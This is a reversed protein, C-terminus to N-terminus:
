TLLKKVANATLGNKELQKEVSAHVVFADKVGLVTVKQLVKNDAYYKLVHTGFGGLEANDELTIVNKGKIENLVNADLPKITRANYVATDTGKSANLALEIMRPGVALIVNKGGKQLLEWKFDSTFPATEETNQIKGNPYRIAVPANLKLAEEIMLSLENLDKPALVTLNPVHSLYSLDFVGQHTKGDSGVLGARDLCFIVPLNQLCVDHVIQDYARQMFTSYIFVIPKTGSIAMGSALTVAYEECIGVDIFNSPHKEAFDSLGTGDKMGATIAHVNPNKSVIENLVSSIGGSFYHKSVQMDKSVGHFKSSNEEAVPLGKGKVTTLHLLTPVNSDRIDALIKILTKLNHGDFKGVYKLGVSDTITNISMSRKLFRKIAKLWRGIFCKGVTRSLFSNFRNYGKKVTIKSIVKYLGNDNKNISMGNDNLVVLFNSPKNTSSTIAELNEGNFLSADGVVTIVNYNDGLKDRSYCYGLGSAISTGAHGVSFADFESESPDPFGSVGNEKRIHSLDRGSLLKHAYAQHGVDFIIKDSPLDFVYHLAVTLEVTGLNSSLHGGNKDVVRIIESRLEQCLANLQKINLQKLSKSDPITIM